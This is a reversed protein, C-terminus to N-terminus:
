PADERPAPGSAAAEPWAPLTEPITWGLGAVAQRWASRDWISDTDPANGAPIHHWRQMQRLWAAGHRPHPASEAGTPFVPGSAPDGLGAAIVDPPLGLGRQALLRGAEALNAHDGLWEAALLTAAILAAVQDPEADLLSKTVGLVKEPHSPWAQGSSLAVRGTGVASAHLGWPAGACFGDITGAQLADVVQAPPVVSLAVDRDPDVRGADLWDRVLYNHSSFPFVVALRLPATGAARRRSVVSSLAAPPLPVQGALDPRAAEIERWLSESLTLTNGGLSLTSVVRLEAKVGGLGAAAAIAMPSLMQAGHLAGFALRDRVSAWSPVLHLAVALGRRTFLGLEDAVLLPAADALAVYGFQLVDISSERTSDRVHPHPLATM